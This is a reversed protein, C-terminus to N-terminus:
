VPEFGLPEDDRAARYNFLIEDGVAIREHAVVLLRGQEPERVMRVNPRLSHNYFSGFGGAIAASKLDAGWYYYYHFIDTAEILPVQDPPIVVIIPVVEVTDGPEFARRAFVGLGKDSVHRMELDATQFMPETGRAARAHRDAIRRAGTAPWDSLNSAMPEM